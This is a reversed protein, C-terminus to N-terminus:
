VFLWWFGQITLFVKIIVYCFKPSLYEFLLLSNDIEILFITLWFMFSSLSTWWKHSQILGGEGKSKPFPKLWRRLVETGANYIYLWFAFSLVVLSLYLVFCVHLYLSACRFTSPCAFKPILTLMDLHFFWFEVSCFDTFLFFLLSCVFLDQAPYHFYYDSPCASM